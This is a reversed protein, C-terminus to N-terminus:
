GYTCTHAGRAWHLALTCAHTGARLTCSRWSPRCSRASSGASVLLRPAHTVVSFRKCAHAGAILSCTNWAQLTNCHSFIHYCAHVGTIVYATPSATSAPTHAQLTLAPTHAQLKNCHSVLHECTHSGADPAPLPLKCHARASLSSTPAPTHAQLTNSQSLLHDCAHAGSSLLPMPLLRLRVRRRYSTGHVVICPCACVQGDDVAFRFRQAQPAQLPVHLLAPTLAQKM